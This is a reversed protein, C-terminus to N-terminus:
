VAHAVCEPRTLTCYDPFETTVHNHEAMRLKRGYPILEEVNWAENRTGLGPKVKKLRRRMRYELLGAGGGQQCDSGLLMM